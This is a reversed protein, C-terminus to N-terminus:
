KQALGLAEYISKFLWQTAIASALAGPPIVDAFALTIFVLSDLGQVVFTSRITRTWLRRGKAAIKMKVLVSSNSFEGILYAIFSAFLLGPTYGPIQEYAPRKEWLSEPPLLQGVPYRAHSSSQVFFGVM